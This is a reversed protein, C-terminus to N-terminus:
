LLQFINSSARKLSPMKKNQNDKEFVKIAQIAALMESLFIQPVSGTPVLKEDTEDKVYGGWKGKSKTKDIIFLRGLKEDGGWGYGAGIGEVELVAEIKKEFYLLNFSELMGGDGTPGKHWGYRELTSRTSGTQMQKGEFIKIISKSLDIGKMDPTKRDLQPFVPDISLDFFQQRWQKLLSDTLQTPHIIGIICDDAIETEEGEVNALSTDENCMFTQQLNGNADYTGWLLKTAYIFMVPNQLFFKQWQEYTWKRQIILYYELRSSQSKVIDRVEKAIAKFAEKITADTAAPIAKLKKNDENFFAMKFNSDIFARYEDGDAQFIKFLGDFGFDPVVRDGLEHITIGLEEAATELAVLAAAGVNAKKSKYKRSYWEVWRLAKDSGQIALAGVGYEAMKGRSEEIWKNISIRIKDVVADNGLLAALAMLWKHEPKAGKEILLKFITLAFENSKEKDLFQLIYRAEMDSRMTKIRSMRYLLFRIEDVTLQLGTSYFLAPLTSEELWPEVPKNLKGRSKAASVMDNIFGISAETPLNDAVTQLLVDRANDNTEINLVKMIAAKASPTAINGLIIASTLRTEANKHNLLTIAKTEAEADNEAIISAVLERLPKSKSSILQWVLPVYKSPEFHEQVFGIVSRFYEIGGQSSKSVDASLTSEFYPFAQEHLHHFLLKLTKIHFFTKQALWGNIIELAIEKEHLLLLHFAYTSHPMYSLDTNEFAAIAYGDEWSQRSSNSSVKKLYKKALALTLDTYKQEEKEYLRIATAFKIQLTSFDENKEDSLFAIIEPMYKGDKYDSFFAVQNQRSDQLGFLMYESAFLPNAEELLKFYFLKWPNYWSSYGQTPYILVPSKLIHDILFNIVGEREEGLEQVDDFGVSAILYQFIADDNMGQKKLEKVIAQFATETKKRFFFLLLWRNFYPHLYQALLPEYIIGLVLQDRVSICEIDKLLNVLGGWYYIKDDPQIGHITNSTGTLYEVIIPYNISKKLGADLQFYMGSNEHQTFLANEIEELTFVM